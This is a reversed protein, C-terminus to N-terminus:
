EVVTMEGVMGAERHGAVDCWYPFTGTSAPTFTVSTTEGPQITDTKVIFSGEDDQEAVTREDTPFEGVTLNHAVEGVNEFRITLEQGVRAQFADPALVWESGTVTIEGGLANPTPTATPTQTPSPTADTTPSPTATPSSTPTDTPSEGPTEESPATCGALVGLAVGSLGLVNRRSLQM